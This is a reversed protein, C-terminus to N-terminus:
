LPQACRCCFLRVLIAKVADALAKAGDDGVQNECLYLKPSRNAPRTTNQHASVVGSNTLWPSWIVAGLFFSHAKCVWILTYTVFHTRSAYRACANGCVMNLCCSATSLTMFDARPGVSSVRDAVQMDGPVASKLIESSVNNLVGRRLNAAFKLYQEEAPHTGAGHLLM